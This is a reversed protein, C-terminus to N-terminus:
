GLLLAWILVEFGPAGLPYFEVPYGGQHASIWRLPQLDRLSRLLLEARTAHFPHDTAGFTNVIRETTGDPGAVTSWLDFGGLRDFVWFALCFLVVLWALDVATSVRLRVRSGLFRSM